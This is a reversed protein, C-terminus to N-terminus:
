QSALVPKSRATGTIPNVAIEMTKEKGKTGSVTHLLQFYPIGSGPRAFAGGTPKFVIEQPPLDDPDFIVFRPLLKWRGVTIKEDEKPNNYDKAKREVFYIRYSDETVGDALQSATLNTEDTIFEVRYMYRNAIALQRALAFTDTLATAANRLATGKIIANFSPIGIAALLGAILLVALLELLTVGDPRKTPRIAKM